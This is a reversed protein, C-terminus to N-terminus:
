EPKKRLLRNAVVLVAGVALTGLAVLINRTQHAGTEALAETAQVPAAESDASSEDKPPIQEQPTADGAPASLEDPATIDPKEVLPQEPPAQEVPPQEAPQDDAPPQETPQEDAPPEEEIDAQQWILELESTAQHSTQDVVVITQFRRQADPEPTILRGTYGYETSEASITIGGTATEAPVHIWIEDTTVEQSTDLTEGNADVISLEALDVDATSTSLELDVQHTSANLQIPGIVHDQEDQILKEMQTPPELQEATADILTVSAQVEQENLGTNHEGTLYDFVAQVNQASDAAVPVDSNAANNVTLDGAPVFDDTFHWIATQTASIAEAETLQNVGANEALEALELTPYSNRLIWAVNKRVQPDTKFNNDGTFDDWGTVASEHDPDAAQVWYEICYALISEGDVVVSRLTPAVGNVTLGHQYEQAPGMVATNSQEEVDSSTEVGLPVSYALSPTLLVSGGLSVTALSTM